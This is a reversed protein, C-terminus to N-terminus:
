KPESSIDDNKGLQLFCLIWSHRDTLVFGMKLQTFVDSYLSDDM